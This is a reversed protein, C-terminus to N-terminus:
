CMTTICNTSGTGSSSTHLAYDETMTQHHYNHIRPLDDDLYEDFACKQHDGWSVQYEIIYGGSGSGGPDPCSDARASAPAFFFKLAILFSAGIRLLKGCPRAPELTTIISLNM